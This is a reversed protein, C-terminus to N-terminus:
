GLRLLPGFLAGDERREGRRWGGLRAQGPEDAARGVEGGEVLRESLRRAATGDRLDGLDVGASVRGVPERLRNAATGDHRGDLAARADALGGRERPGSTGDHR